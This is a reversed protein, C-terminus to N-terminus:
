FFGCHKLLDFQPDNIVTEFYPTIGYWIIDYISNYTQHSQRLFVDKGAIVAYDYGSFSLPLNSEDIDGTFCLELRDPATLPVDKEQLIGQTYGITEQTASYTCFNLLRILRADDKELETSVGNQYLTASLIEPFQEPLQLLTESSFFNIDPLEPAAYTPEINDEYIQENVCSTNIVLMLLCLFVIICSYSKM